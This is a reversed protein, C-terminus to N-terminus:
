QSYYCLNNTETLLFMFFFHSNECFFALFAYIWPTKSHLKHKQLEFLCLQVLNQGKKATKGEQISSFLPNKGIFSLNERFFSPSRNNFAYIQTIIHLFKHKKPSKVTFLRQRPPTTPTCGGCQPYRFLGSPTGSSKPACPAAGEKNKKNRKTSVHQCKNKKINSNTTVFLNDPWARCHCVLTM